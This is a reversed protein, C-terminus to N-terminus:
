YFVQLGNGEIQNRKDFIRYINESHQLFGAYYITGEVPWLTLDASNSVDNWYRNSVMFMLYKVQGTMVAGTYKPPMMGCVGFLGGQYIASSM